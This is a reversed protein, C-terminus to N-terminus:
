GKVTRLEGHEDAVERLPLRPQNPDDRLLTGEPTVFFTTSPRAHKPLKETFDGDIAVLGRGSPTFTLSISLKGPKRTERVAHIIEYVKRTIDDVFEGDEVERLLDTLPKGDTM